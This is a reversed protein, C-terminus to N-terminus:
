NPGLLVFPAWYYPSKWNPQQRVWRKAEILDKAYDSSDADKKARTIGGVFYSILSAGAADDILWDSAVVRRAGGVIFGRALAWTGEGGQMPGQNTQCASLIALECGNLDLSYIEALTLFGDNASQVSGQQPGSVALAGFYNGYNQDAMGHCAFHIFRQGIIHQRIAAETAQAGTLLTVEAGIKTFLERVWQSETATFPLRDLKGRWTVRGSSAVGRHTQNPNAADYRPDGVTLVRTKGTAAPKRALNLLLTASPVYAIPPSRDLLYTPTPGDSIILAEFPFTSLLYDPVIFLRQYKNSEIAERDAEPILTQYLAALRSQIKKEGGPRSLCPLVGEEPESLVKIITEDKLHEDSTGLASKLSQPVSMTTVAPGSERGISIVTTDHDDIMYYLLLAKHQQAWEQLETATVPEFHDGLTQRYVLSADRVSEEVEILARQAVAIERLLNEKETAKERESLKSRQDLSEYRSELNALEQRAEVLKKRIEAAQAAPLGQLLDVKALSLQDILTRARGKEVAAVAEDIRNQKLLTHAYRLYALVYYQFGQSRNADGGAFGARAIETVDSAKKFNELALDLNNARLAIEGKLFYARYRSWISRDLREFIKLAEDAMVLAEEHKGQHELASAIGHMVQAAEVTGGIKRQQMMELFTRFQSEAEAGRDQYLYLQALELSAVGKPHRKGYIKRNIQFARQYNSEAAKLDGKQIQLNGLQNLGEAVSADSPGRLLEYMKVAAESFPEADAYRQQLIYFAALNSYSLAVDIHRPGLVRIRIDLAQKLLPAADSYRNGRTYVDALRELADAVSTSDSGHARKEWDIVRKAIPEAEDLRGMRTLATGLHSYGYVLLPDDTGQARELYAIAQRSVKECLENRGSESYVLALNTYAMGIHLPDDAFQAHALAIMKQALQEAEEFKKARVKSTVQKEIDLLIQPDAALISQFSLCTVIGLWLVFRFHRRKSLESILRPRFDCM